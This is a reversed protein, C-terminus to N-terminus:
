GGFFLLLSRYLVFIYYGDWSPNLEVSTFVTLGTSSFGSTSEFLAQTFDFGRFIFPISGILTACLWLLVLLLSDQHKGLQSKKKHFILLFYLALGILISGAGPIVFAYWYQANKVFQDAGFLPLFPLLLLPLLLIIGIIILFIGLYGFILKYGKVTQKEM